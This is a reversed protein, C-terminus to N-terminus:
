KLIVKATSVKGDKTQIQAFYLGQKFSRVDFSTNGEISKSIVTQGISNILKFNAKGIINVSLYDSTPNPYINVESIESKTVGLTGALAKMESDSLAETFIMVNDIIQQNDFGAGENNGGIKFKAQGDDGSGDEAAAYPAQAGDVNTYELENINEGDLYIKISGKTGDVAYFVDCVYAIQHWTNATITATSYQGSFPSYDAGIQGEEGKSGKIVIEGSKGGSTTYPNVEYLTYPLAADPFKVDMVVTYRNVGTGIYVEDKPTGDGNFHQEGNAGLGHWIDLFSNTELQIAKGGNKGAVFAFDTGEISPTGEYDNGEAAASRKFVGDSWAAYEGASTEDTVVNEFDENDFNFHATAKSLDQASVTAAGLGLVLLLSKVKM